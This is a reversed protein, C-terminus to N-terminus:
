ITIIINELTKKSEQRSIRDAMNFRKKVPRPVRKNNAACYVLEDWIKNYKTYHTCAYLNFEDPVNSEIFEYLLDEQSFVNTNNGIYNVVFIEDDSTILAHSYVYLGNRNRQSDDIVAFNM